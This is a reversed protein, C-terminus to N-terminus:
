IRKEYITSACTKWTVSKAGSAKETSRSEWAFLNVKYLSRHRGSRIFEVYCVYLAGVVVDVDDTDISRRVMVLGAAVMPGITWYPRASGIRPDFRAIERGQLLRDRCATSARARVHLSAQTEIRDSTGHM